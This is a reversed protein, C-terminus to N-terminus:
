QPRRCYAPAWKNYLKGCRRHWIGDTSHITIHANTKNMHAARARLHLACHSTRKTGCSTIMKAFTTKDRKQTHEEEEEEEEVEEEEEEEQQRQQQQQPPPPARRTRVLGSCLHGKLSRVTEM